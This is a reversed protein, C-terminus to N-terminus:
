EPLTVMADCYLGTHLHEFEEVLEKSDHQHAEYMELLEDALKLVQNVQSFTLNEVTMLSGCYSRLERRKLNFEVSPPPFILSHEAIRAILEKHQTFTEWAQILKPLEGELSFGQTRCQSELEAANDQPLKEVLEQILRLEELVLRRQEKFGKHVDQLKLMLLHARNAIVPLNLRKGAARLAHVLQYGQSYRFDIPMGDTM